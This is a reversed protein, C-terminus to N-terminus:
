TEAPSIPVAQQGGRNPDFLVKQTPVDYYFGLRILHSSIYGTCSDLLYTYFDLMRNPHIRPNYKGTLATKSYLQYDTVPVQFDPSCKSILLNRLDGAVKKFMDNICLGGPILGTYVVPTKITLFDELGSLINHFINDAVHKEIITDIYQLTGMLHVIVSRGREISDELKVFSKDAHGNDPGKTNGYENIAELALLLFWNLKVGYACGMLPSVMDLRTVTNKNEDWIRCIPGWMVRSEFSMFWMGQWHQEQKVHSLVDDSTPEACVKMENSLCALVFPVLLKIFSNKEM